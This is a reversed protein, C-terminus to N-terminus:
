WQLMVIPRLGTSGDPYAWLRWRRQKILSSGIVHQFLQREKKPPCSIMEARQDKLQEEEAIGKELSM